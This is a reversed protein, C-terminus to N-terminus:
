KDARISEDYIQNKERPEHRVIKGECMYIVDEAINVAHDAIRELHRSICLHHVWQDMSEPHERMHKKVEDYMDRNIEDVEDDKSLVLKASQMDMNMLADLSKQLMWLTKEAMSNFNYPFPTRQCNLLDITREAINAALDGIRELDYNIKLVAVIFRLDVAVPKYLALIKLCDEEVDIETKNIDMDSHIVKGALVADRKDISQVAQYVTEEVRASLSLVKKKLLEIERHFHITM